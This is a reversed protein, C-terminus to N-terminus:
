TGLDKKGKRELIGLLGGFPSPPIQLLTKDQQVSTKNQDSKAHRVGSCADELEHVTGATEQEVTGCVQRKQPPPDRSSNSSAARRDAGKAGGLKLHQHM